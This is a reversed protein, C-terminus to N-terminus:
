SAPGGATPLTEILMNLQNDCNQDILAKAVSSLDTPVSSLTAFTVKAPPKEGTVSVQYETGAAIPVQDPWALTAQGAPWEATQPTGGARTITLTAPKAASSRWLMVSKPDALCAKGSQSVDVHWITPSRPVIGATRLASFRGRRGAMISLRSDGGASALAFTGPGHLTRTSDSALVTLVDGPKLAVKANDPLAKGPRFNPASPGSSRVVLATASAVDAGVLGAVAAYPLLWAASRRMLRFRSNGRVTM